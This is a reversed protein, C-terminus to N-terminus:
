EGKKTEYDRWAKCKGRKKCQQCVEVPKKCERGKKARCILFTM